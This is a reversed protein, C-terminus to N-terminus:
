YTPNVPDRHKPPTNQDFIPKSWDLPKASDFQSWKDTTPHPVPTKLYDSETPQYDNDGVITPTIFIILNSKDRSKSKSRFMAGLGPLDGLLPVKTTQYYQNDQVLGGMVLTNGSPIMVTTDMIRTDFIPVDFALGGATFTQVHDLRMVHPSVKLNIYNNASIRPTVDLKVTLNSYTIQSGGANNASGPSVNVIPYNQGVEIHATENDMTVTRPESLVKAESSSNIFSLVASVGEANLFASAPNFFSGSSASMLLGPFNLIGGITGPNGPVTVPNGNADLSTTAPTPAVGPLANNGFVVHQAQLTGSWDVGKTTRPNMSTELLRAEILVQKTPSDLRQVLDDVNNLEKETAVIVLQSTRMDSVVKSRKDILATQVSSVINSPSTYKLQIIRTVLPEPAAPDKITVRTIKTKPDDVLQLGNNALLANLAQEATVNEWRISVTPQPRGPQGDAGQGYVVRPDLMYNLNAQRALNKIADTLPVDDMVILPIVGPASPTANTAAVEATPTSEPTTAPTAAAADPAANTVAPNDQAFAALSCAVLGLMMLMTIKSKM